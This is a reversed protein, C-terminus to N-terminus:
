LAETSRSTSFLRHLFVLASAFLLLICIFTTLFGLVFWVKMQIKKLADLLIFYVEKHSYERIYLSVCMGTDKQELSLFFITYKKRINNLIKKCCLVICIKSHLSFSTCHLVYPFSPQKSDWAIVLHKDHYSQFARVLFANKPPQLDHWSAM